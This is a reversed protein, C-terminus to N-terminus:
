QEGAANERANLFIEFALRVFISPRLRVKKLVDLSDTSHL